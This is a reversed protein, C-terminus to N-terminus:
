AAAADAIRHDKAGASEGKRFCSPKYDRAGHLIHVVEVVEREVRYFILYSGYPRRRIGSAEHRPMLPYAQPSSGLKRCCDRTERVFSAARRPNDEAIYDAIQELDRMAADAFVTKM